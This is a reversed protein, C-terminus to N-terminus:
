TTRRSRAQKRLRGKKDVGPFSNRCLVATCYLDVGAPMSHGALSAVPSTSKIHRAESLAANPPKTYQDDLFRVSAALVHHAVGLRAVASQATSSRSTM